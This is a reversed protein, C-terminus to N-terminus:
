NAMKEVMSQDMGKSIILRSSQFGGDGHIGVHDFEANHLPMISEVYPDVNPSISAGGENEPGTLIEHVIRLREAETLHQYEEDAFDESDQQKEMGQVRIGLLFDRIRCISILVIDM